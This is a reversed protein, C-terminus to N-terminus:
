KISSLQQQYLQTLYPSLWLFNVLMMAVNVAFGIISLIMGTKGAKTKERKQQRLCLIFGVVSMIIGLLPSFLFMVISVIGLTFGAVGKSESNGKKEERKERAM